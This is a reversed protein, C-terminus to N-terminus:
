LLLLYGAPVEQTLWVGNTSIFFRFGDDCMERALVRYVLPEGHRSGVSTATEIDKSLHVYQRGMKKLGDAMISSANRQATGHYLIEPPNSEELNLEINLSHGQCARIKKGDESFEYRGKSDSSVVENLFGISSHTKQVLVNVNTWGNEDLIIGAVEPKHRLILSLFKSYQIKDRM